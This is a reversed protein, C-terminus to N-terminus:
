FSDSRLKKNASYGLTGYELSTTCGVKRKLSMLLSRRYIPWLRELFPSYMSSSEFPVISFVESSITIRPIVPIRFPRDGTCYEMYRGETCFLQTPSAKSLWLDLIKSQFASLYETSTMEIHQFM